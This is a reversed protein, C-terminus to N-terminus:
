LVEINDFNTATKKPSLIAFLIFSIVFAPIATWLLNKIHDFLDVKVTTSALNTTDSLPSMKDGLFAGSIAAGATIAASMDLASSVSIFVVGLTATTTLSSGISMGIIATIVFVIAFFFQGNV